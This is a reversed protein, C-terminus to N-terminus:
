TNKVYTIFNQAFYYQLVSHLQLDKRQQKFCQNSYKAVSGNNKMQLM